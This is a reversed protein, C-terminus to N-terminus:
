THKDYVEPTQEKYFEELDSDSGKDSENDKQEPILTLRIKYAKENKYSYFPDNDIGFYKKLRESLLQKQKKGQPTATSSRWSIEGKTESLGKLFSWQKNPKNPTKASKTRKDLFGMDEYNTHRSLNGCKILVEDGNLFRITIDEWKVEPPLKLIGKGHPLLGVQNKYQKLKGVNLGTLYFRAGGTYNQKSYHKFGGFNKLEEFWCMLTKVDGITNEFNLENLDICISPSNQYEVREIILNIAHAFKDEKAVLIRRQKLDEKHRREALAQEHLRINAEEAKKILEDTRDPIVEPEYVKEIRKVPTIKKKVKM